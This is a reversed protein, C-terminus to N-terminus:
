VTSLEFGPWRWVCRVGHRQAVPPACGSRSTASWGRRPSSPSGLRWDDADMAAVRKASFSDALLGVADPQLRHGTGHAACLSSSPEPGRNILSFPPQLSDVHGLARLAGPSGRRLQSACWRVKGGRLLLLAGWSEEIAGRTTRGTSSTSDIAEVGLRWRRRASAASRSRPCCGGPFATPREPWVMRVQHLGASAGVRSATGASQGGGGRPRSSQRTDVLGGFEVRPPHRLDLRHRGPGGASPTGGEVSALRRLWTPSRRGVGSRAVLCGSAIEARLRSFRLPEDLTYCGGAVTGPGRAIPRENRWM